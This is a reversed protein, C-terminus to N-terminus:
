GAPRTRFLNLAGITEARLRMPLAQASCFGLGQLQETFAPWSTATSM